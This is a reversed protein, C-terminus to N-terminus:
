LRNGWAEKRLVEPDINKDKWIGAVQMFDAKKSYTIPLSNNKVKITLEM